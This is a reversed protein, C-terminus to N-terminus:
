IGFSGISALIASTETKEEEAMGVQNNNTGASSEWSWYTHRQLGVVVVAKCRKRFDVNEARQQHITIIINHLILTRCM